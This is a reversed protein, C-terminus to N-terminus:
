IPASRSSSSATSVTVTDGPKIVPNEALDACLYDSLNMEAAFTSAGSTSVSAGTVMAPWQRM